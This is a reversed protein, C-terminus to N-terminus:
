FAVPSPTSRGKKTGDGLQGVSNDGWCVVSGDGLSACSFLAGLALSRVDSLGPVAVPIPSNPGTTGLQGADNAGWCVAGGAQRIACAHTEGAAIVVADTLGTVAVPTESPATLGNGLRGYRGDGWCRVSGSDVLACAFESSIAVSSVASMYPVRAPVPQNSNTGLLVRFIGEGWGMWYGDHSLAYNVSGGAFLGATVIGDVVTPTAVRGASSGLGLQGSRNDGWCALYGADDRLCHHYDGGVVQAPNMGATPLTAPTPVFHTPTGADDFLDAGWCAVHGAAVVCTGYQTASVDTIAVAGEPLSVRTPLTKTETSGIGLQGSTNGGWCSIPRSTGWACAHVAGARVGVLVPPADPPPPAADDSTDTQAESAADSASDGLDTADSNAIKAGCGVSIAVVIGTVVLVSERM